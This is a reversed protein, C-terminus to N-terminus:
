RAGARAPRNTGLAPRLDGMPTDAAFWQIVPAVLSELALMAFTLAFAVPSVSPSSRTFFRRAAGLTVQGLQLFDDGRDYDLALRCAENHADNRHKTAADFPKKLNDSGGTYANRIIARTEDHEADAGVGFVHRHRAMVQRALHLHDYSQRTAPDATPFVNDFSESVMGFVAPVQTVNSVWLPRLRRRAFLLFATLGYLVGSLGGARHAPDVMVLGLHLVEVPRGRLECDLLTLANFAIPAGARDYVVTVIADDLRARDGSVVGYDLSGAPTAARVVHQLDAILHAIADPAMWRGPREVIRVRAGARASVTEDLYPRSLTAPSLV